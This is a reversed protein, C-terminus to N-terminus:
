GGTIIELAINALILCIYVNIVNFPRTCLYKPWFNDSSITVNDNSITVNATCDGGTIIELAINEM